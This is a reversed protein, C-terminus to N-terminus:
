FEVVRAVMLAENRRDGSPIPTDDVVVAEVLMVTMSGVDVVSTSM